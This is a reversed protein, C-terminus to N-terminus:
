APIEERIRSGPKCIMCAGGAGPRHAPDALYELLGPIAAKVRPSGLPGLPTAWLTALDDRHLHKRHALCLGALPGQKELRARETALADARTKAEALKRTYTAELARWEREKAALRSRPDFAEPEFSWPEDHGAVCAVCVTV